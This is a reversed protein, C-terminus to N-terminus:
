MATQKATAAGNAVNTNVRVFLVFEPVIAPIQRPVAVAPPVGRLHREVDSAQALPQREVHRQRLEV